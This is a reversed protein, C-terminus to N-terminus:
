YVTENEDNSQYRNPYNWFSSNHTDDLSSNHHRISLDDIHSSTPPTTMITTDITPIPKKINDEDRTLFYKIIEKELAEDRKASKTKNFRNHNTFRLVGTKDNKELDVLPSFRYQELLARFIYCIILRLFKLFSIGDNM